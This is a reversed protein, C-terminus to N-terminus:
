LPTVGSDEVVLYRGDVDVPPLVQIGPSAPWHVQVMDITTAAGLGFHVTMSSQNGSHGGGAKIERIQTIGGADIEVRAGAAGERAVNTM